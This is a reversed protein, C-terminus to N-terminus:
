AAQAVQGQSCACSPGSSDSSVTTQRRRKCAGEIGVRENDQVAEEVDRMGKRVFTVSAQAHSAAVLSACLSRSPHQLLSPPASLQRSGATGPDEVDFVITPRWM